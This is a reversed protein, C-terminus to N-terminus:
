DSATKALLKSLYLIVEKVGFDTVSSITFYIYGKSSCYDKLIKLREGSTAIDYKTGVVIIPKELLSKNHQSLENQIKEFDDIPNSQRMDSIDVLHLLISAREIHRLFELGLGAGKHAGEIIGPIDAIVFSKYDETKVVGLNPTLTTFPYDAIKPRSASVKSIFTSKGANPLGVLGVDALLKLELIINREEGVEGPQAFRPTQRTPTAFHANGLGGRGGKAAIIEMGEICLDAILEDNHEDKVITGVPVPIILDEGDKGKKNSGQGHEGRKAKYIRKYRFDLLTHLENTARFIVDGGKGGDGGNPGGKPVYKERRFSVCGRGGDGAKIYIKAYDIFKM